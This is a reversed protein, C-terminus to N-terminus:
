RRHDHDAGPSSDGHALNAALSVTIPIDLAELALLAAGAAPPMEPLAVRVSPIRTALAAVFPAMLVEGAGFVGGVLGVQPQGELNLQSAAAAVLGALEEAGRAVIATAVADGDAAATMVLPALSAIASRSMGQIHLRHLLDRLENLGLASTVSSRLSTPRGRGDAAHAAARIAEVGFWHGSGEDGVMSGWGGVLTSAGDASRGYCSSGTGAILVIGPRGSLAGALAVRCDHDIELVGDDVLELPHVVEAAVAHDAESVIGAMGIFAADFPMRDLEAEGRAVDIAAALNARTADIGLDDVNGSGSQGRGLVNGTEDAITAITSTGGADIGLVTRIM